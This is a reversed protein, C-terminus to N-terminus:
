GGPIPFGLTALTLPWEPVCHGIDPSQPGRLGPRPVACNPLRRPNKEQSRIRGTRCDEPRTLSMVIGNIRDRLGPRM